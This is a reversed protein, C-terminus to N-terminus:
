FTLVANVFSYILSLVVRPFRIEWLITQQLSGKDAGSLIAFVEAWSIAVGGISLAALWILLCASLLIPLLGKRATEREIVVHGLALM